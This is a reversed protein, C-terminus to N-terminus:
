RSREDGISEYKGGDENEMRRGMNLTSNQGAIHTGMQQTKMRLESAPNATTAEM